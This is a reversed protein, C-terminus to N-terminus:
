PALEQQWAERLEFPSVRGELIGAVSLGRPLARDVVEAHHPMTGTWVLPKGLAERRFLVEHSFDDHLSPVLEIIERTQRLLGAPRSARGAPGAEGEQVELHMVYKISSALVERV